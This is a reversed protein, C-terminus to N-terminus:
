KLLKRNATIVAVDYKGFDGDDTVFQFGKDKCLEALVQDNFDHKGTEYDALLTTCNLAAFGCEVPKAHSLIRRCSAAIDKATTKFHRSNRYQKFDLSRLGAARTNFRYRAFANVFESLVLADIFIQCKAALIKALASSYIATRRDGATYQPGYLLVWINADLLLSEGSKFTYSDIRLAKKAM